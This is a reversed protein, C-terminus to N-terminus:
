DMLKFMNKPAWFFRRMSVTRKPVWLMHKPQSILFNTKQYASKALPRCRIIVYIQIYCPWKTVSLKKVMLSKKRTDWPGNYPGQGLPLHRCKKGLKFLFIGILLDKKHLDIYNVSQRWKWHVKLWFLAYLWSYSHNMATKPYRNLFIIYFHVFFNEWNRNFHRFNGLAFPGLAGEWFPQFFGQGHFKVFPNYSITMKKCNRHLLTGKYCWKSIVHYIGITELDLSIFPSCQIIM